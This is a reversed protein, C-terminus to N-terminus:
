LCAETRKQKYQKAWGEECFFGDETEWPMLGNDDKQNRQKQKQIPRDNYEPRRNMWNRLNATAVKLHKAMTPTYLTKYNDNVYEIEKPSLQFKAIM